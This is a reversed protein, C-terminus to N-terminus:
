CPLGIECIEAAGDLEDVRGFVFIRSVVGAARVVVDQTANGFAFGVVGILFDAFDQQFGIGCSVEDAEYDALRSIELGFEAEGVPLFIEGDCFGHKVERWGRADCDNVLGRQGILDVSSAGPM